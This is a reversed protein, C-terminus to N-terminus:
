KGSKGFGELPNQVHLVLNGDNTDPQDSYIITPNNTAVLLTFYVSRDLGQVWCM